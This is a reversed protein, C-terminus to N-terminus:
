PMKPAIAVGAQNEKIPAITGSFILPLYKPFLFLITPMTAKIELKTVAKKSSKKLVFPMTRRPKETKNRMAEIALNM